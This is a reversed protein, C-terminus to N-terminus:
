PRRRKQMKAPLVRLARLTELKGSMEWIVKLNMAITGFGIVMLLIREGYGDSLGIKTIQGHGSAWEAWNEDDLRMEGMTKYQPKWKNFGCIIQDLKSM